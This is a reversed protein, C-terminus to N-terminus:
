CPWWGSPTSILLRLGQQQRLNELQRWALQQSAAPDGTQQVFFAQAQAVFSNAAANFSDLYEGLRLVQFQDRREQFTQSL